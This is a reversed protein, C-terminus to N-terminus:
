TYGYASKRKGKCVASIHSRCNKAKTKGIKILWREADMTSSFEKNEEICFVKKPQAILSKRAKESNFFREKWNPDKIYQSVINKISDISCNCEKAIDSATLFKNNYYLSMVKEYDIRFSGDGGKTANYGNKYSNYYQIYYIEKKSAEEPKCEELKEIWFHNEGYKNIADYLPRKECREKKSDQVHEQFRKELSFNTKGIYVKSNIDNKIIYVYAM